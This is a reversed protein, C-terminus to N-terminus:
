RWFPILVPKKWPPDKLDATNKPLEEPPIPLVGIVHRGRAMSDVPIYTIVGKVGTAPHEYFAFSLDPRAVGDLTVAHM